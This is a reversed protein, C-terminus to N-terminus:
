LNFPWPVQITVFSSTHARILSIPIRGAMRTGQASSANNAAPSINWHPIGITSNVIVTGPAMPTM